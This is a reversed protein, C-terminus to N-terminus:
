IGGFVFSHKNINLLCRPRFLVLQISHHSGAWHRFAILQCIILIIPLDLLCLILLSGIWWHASLAVLVSDLQKLIGILDVLSLLKVNRSYHGILLIPFQRRYIWNLIFIWNMWLVQIRLIVLVLLSTIMFTLLKFHLRVSAILNIFFAWKDFISLLVVLWVEDSISFRVIFYLIKHSLPAHIFRLLHIVM